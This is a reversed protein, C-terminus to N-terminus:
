SRPEHPQQASRGAPTGIAGERAALTRYGFDHRLYRALIASMAQMDRGDFAARPAGADDPVIVEGANPDQRERIAQKSTFRLAQQLAVDSFELKLHGAIRPVWVAPAAVLDEYRVVLIRAPDAEAWEGWRNFFHVYWWIDAVFRRGSPDGRAFDALSTEYQAQWKTYNSLMAADIARLLLVIPPRRALLRPVYRVLASPITHTTGIRPVDAYRRPRAPHGIIDEAGQGTSHAPPELGHQAALGASLMYKLWHSGSNKGSVLFGDVHRHQIFFFNGLDARLVRLRFRAWDPMTARLPWHGSRVFALSFAVALVTCEDLHGIWPTRNPILDSGSSAYAVGALAAMAYMM